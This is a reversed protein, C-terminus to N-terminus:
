SRTSWFDPQDSLSHHDHDSLPLREGRRTGQTGDVFTSEGQDKPANASVRINYGM